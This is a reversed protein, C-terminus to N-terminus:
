SLMIKRADWRGVMERERERMRKKQTQEEFLEREKKEETRNTYKLVKGIIILIYNNSVM